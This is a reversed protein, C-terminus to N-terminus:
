ATSTASAYPDPYPVSASGREVLGGDCALSRIRIFFVRSPHPHCGRSLTLRLAIVALPSTGQTAVMIAVVACYLFTGGM